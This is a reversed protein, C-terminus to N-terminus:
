FIGYIFGAMVSIDSTLQIIVTYIRQRWNKTYKRHKYVAWFLYVIFIPWFFIFIFYRVFISLTHVNHRSLLNGGQADGRAYYFFKKCASILNDPVEWNVLANRARKIQFNHISLQLNFETDEGAKDLKENFGGVKKWVSKKFAISRTSPLFTNEDFRDPMVGLFPKLAVQFDTEGTMTYFGATVDTDTCIRELWKKECVCGGDTMAIIPYRANQIALNRGRAISIRKKSQIIKFGIDLKNIRKNTYENIKSVTNDSSGGDVIVIEDPKRTQKALSDLLRIITKEENFTTICLSVKM